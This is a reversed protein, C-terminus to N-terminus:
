RKVGLQYDGDGLETMRELWKERNGDALYQKAEGAKQYDADSRSWAARTRAAEDVEGFFTDAGPILKLKFEDATMARGWKDAASTIGPVVYGKILYALAEPTVRLDAM